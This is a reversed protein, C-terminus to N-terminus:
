KQKRSCYYTSRGAQSLRKVGGTVLIECNCGPCAEGERGYVKFNNQFYGLEGDPRAYDRLSSGGAEIAETLVERIAQVLREARNGQVTTATRKPSIGARFLSECAYINGLGAVNRQDLLASKIPTNHGKLNAALLAGNFNNSLPEPGLKKLLKHENLRQASTLTMLGFRRPDSFRIMNGSATKFEIHDHRGPFPIAEGTLYVAMRGSMGLHIIIVSADELVILIYKGRRGVKLVRRLVLKERFNKPVPIRLKPQRVVVDQLTADELIPALGRCVTEVEPLEPM